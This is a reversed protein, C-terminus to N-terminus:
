TTGEQLKTGCEGCYTEHGTLPANCTPCRQETPPPPTPAARKRTAFVITAIIGIICISVTIAVGILLLPSLGPFSPSTPITQWQYLDNTFQVTKSSIVSFTNSFVFYWTDSHPYTFDSSYSVVNEHLKYVSATYGSSWLDYNEEDCIFFDIDRNGGAIVELDFAAKYGEARDAYVIFWGGPDIVFTGDYTTTVFVWDARIPPVTLMLAMILTSIVFAKRRMAVKGEPIFEM